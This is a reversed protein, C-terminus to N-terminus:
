GPKKAQCSGCDQKKECEDCCPALYGALIAAGLVVGASRWLPKDLKALWLLFGVVIAAGASWMLKM